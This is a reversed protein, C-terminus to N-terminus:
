WGAFPLDRDASVHAFLPEVIGAAKAEASVTALKTGHSVLRGGELAVWQGAYPASEKALWDLDQRRDEVPEPSEWSLPAIAEDAFNM